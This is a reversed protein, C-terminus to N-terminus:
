TPASNCNYTKNHLMYHFNQLYGSNIILKMNRILKRTLRVQATYIQSQKNLNVATNITKKGPM